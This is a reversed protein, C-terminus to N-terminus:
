EEKEKMTNGAIFFAIGSFALAEFVSTVENGTNGFPDAAARPIHLLIFWLFLMAGLLIAIAKVRIKLIIAVGSGILAVGAFYTCFTHDPFWSPVLTAVFDTYFFHDIGFSIMTICFFLSGFPILKELLRTLLFQKEAGPKEAPFTGAIIFAGGALALEKLPDTWLGLHYPFNQNVFLLYPVHFAIFLFLLLGGLFLSVTRARKKLLIFICATIFAAGSIYVWISFGHIWSPWAAPLFVPRMDGYFFQQFAIAALGLCYCLRGAKILKDM